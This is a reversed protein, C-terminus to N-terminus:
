AAINQRQERARLIDVMPTRPPRGSYRRVKIRGKQVANYFGAPTLTPENTGQFVRAAEVDTLDINEAGIERELRWIEELTRNTYTARPM